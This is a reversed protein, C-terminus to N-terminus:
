SMKHLSALFLLKESVNEVENSDVAPFNQIIKKTEKTAARMLRVWQWIMYKSDPILHIIQRYIEWSKWEISLSSFLRNWANPSAPVSCFRFIRRQFTQVLFSFFAFLKNAAQVCLCVCMCKTKVGMGLSGWTHLTANQFKYIFFKIKCMMKNIIKIIDDATRTATAAMWWCYTSFFM